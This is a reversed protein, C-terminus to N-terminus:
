VEQDKESVNEYYERSFNGADNDYDDSVFFNYYKSQILEQFCRNVFKNLLVESSIENMGIDLGFDEPIIIHGGCLIVKGNILLDAMKEVKNISLHLDDSKISIFANYFPHKYAFSSVTANELIKRKSKWMFLSSLSSSKNYLEGAMYTLIAIIKLRIKQKM